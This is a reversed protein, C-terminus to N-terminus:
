TTPRPRDALLDPTSFGSGTLTCNGQADQTTCTPLQPTITGTDTPTGTAPVQIQHVVHDGSTGTYFTNGDPSFIGSVPATAGNSLVVESITGPGSAAPRYAPLKTGTAPGGPNTYTVFAIASNPGPIVGTITTPTVGLPTPNSTPLNFFTPCAGPNNTGNSLTLQFDSLTNGTVSAGLLHKSDNTVGLKDTTAAATQVLPYFDTIPTAPTPCYSRETTTAGALFASISPIAVVLDSPTAPLTYSHWGDFQSFVWFNSGDSTNTGAIYIHQNDPSFAARTATGGFSINSGTGTFYIYILNHVADSMVLVTGDNSVGVLTGKVSADERTVTNNIMSVEILESPSGFYMTQGFKDAFMSNPVFPLRSPAGIAGTSFDINTFYQSSTSAMYLITNVTGPTTVQIPNSTVPLGNGNVGQTNLPSPNCQSPQCVATITGSGPFSAAVLGSSNANVTNLSTSIYELSLGTITVGNTDVVTANLNQPTNQNVTISTATTNPVSLTISRPPCTSYIGAPSSANSTSASVVTSGPLEATAIPPVVSSNISVISSDQPVFDLPGTLPTIDTSVGNVNALVTANLATTTGQSLCGTQSALQMSTIPPHVFVPVANSTAGGVSATVFAIPVAGTYTLSTGTFSLTNGAGTPGFVVVTNNGQVVAFLLSGAPGGGTLHTAPNITLTNAAGAPGTITVTEGNPSLTATLNGGSFTANSNFASVFGAQGTTGTITSTFTAGNYTISISGNVNTTPSGLGILFASSGTTSTAATPTSFTVVDTTSFANNSNFSAAFTTPDIGTVAGSLVPGGGISIAVTGTTNATPTLFNLTGSGGLTSTPATTSNFTPTIPLPVAPPNCTTYDPVGGPTNRNWTGACVAGNPSVDAYTINTTGFSFRVVGVADGKCDTATASGMQAISGYPLSLGFLRPELNINTVQGEKAGSSGGNCFDFSDAKKCGSISLGVPISFVLILALTVFRRM